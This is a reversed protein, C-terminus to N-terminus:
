DARIPFGAYSRGPLLREHKMVVSNPAVRAGAGVEAGYLLVANRGVSAERRITITDLKLVRDEFTHAQFIGDFTAGDEFVLMDPDPLDEAFGGGLAVNRGIRIGTLRLLSALLLSGDLASVAGGAWVNWAMCVFDWRSAFCSWLPHAGPKVRQLLLWKMAIVAFAPLFFAALTALPLAFLLHAPAPLAGAAARVAVYWAPFLVVPLAPLAFRLWEWFVRNAYRVPSPELTLRRDFEVIQRRPLEFSPHGFWATGPEIEAPDAVTCVGLLIDDPLPAGGAIVVGNGFFSHEGLRVPAVAVTGRHIRPGGLYIGDACFTGSGVTLLEPITDFLSSIECGRGIRAGALRLWVPWLLTGWLWRGSSDVLGAKLWVRSYAPSFLPLVGERVRGLLRCAVAEALLTLPAALIAAAVGALLLRPDLSPAALWALVRATDIGYAGAFLPALLTAPLSRLVLLALRLLILLAGFLGPRLTPAPQSIVPPEPSLGAPRAPIGDWLEGRPIREGRPLSSRASLFAEPELATDGELSSHVDLTAGDGISISGFVLQGDELEVLQLAVDQGISVDDGIELLDWGGEVLNVGRHVHVRKGIRAGLARLASLQFETGALLGWPVLKVAQQVIWNRLYFGGRVPVRGPRYTGILAKKAIAALAVSVPAWLLRAVFVIAPALLLLPVLGLASLLAPVLRFAVERALLAGALLAISLVGAQAVTTLAPYGAEEPIERPRAEAEGPGAGARRALAAATRGDYLDRATLSATAPDDRLLSVALAASLSDGGLDSFFDDEVSVPGQRELVDRFVEAIKSELVSRPAVFPRAAEPEEEPLLPLAPRNLKGGLTKPLEPLFGIRSPVMYAPLAKELLAKLGSASPPAGPEAPVVYAVLIQRAGEGQVRCAAELVGPSEALRAEVEELEVRYGRLKVQHDIRGLCFFTGDPARRALDGTRYIRGLAPHVPFREATLDPRNHYGRALGVGGVFLEGTEGDPVERLSEDLVWAKVGRLPTGISIEDGKRIQTRIATVACETPGYGNELRWGDTWRDAVDRPLAEGGVYVLRLDPLEAQPDSCVATRLLTPPPCFVTIREARLWPVIDPGLRAAVDDMVVVTAGAALALWIEEVSSDYSPSSGQAVRDGPAIGYEALDAAVLNAISRHEILVGKPRGTTGSTYIVYALRDPALWSPSAARVQPRKRRGTEEGADIVHGAFLAAHEVREKGAADTVLAVAGSDSLLNALHDDPFAPDLSAYAAGAKNVALQAAFLLETTRPLLIAVVCEEAVLPRLAEALRDAERKLEAYTVTRRGPREPGPPIEVATRDPWRQAASEFFEHLLAPEKEFLPLTATDRRLARRM